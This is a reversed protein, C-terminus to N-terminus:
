DQGSFQKLILIVFLVIIVLPMIIMPWLYYSMGNSWWYSSGFFGFFVIGGFRWKRLISIGSVLYIIGMVAFILAFMASFEVVDFAIIALVMILCYAGFGLTLFATIKRFTDDQM